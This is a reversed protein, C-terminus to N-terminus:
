NFHCDGPLESLSSNLDAEPDEEIRKDVKEAKTLAGGGEKGENEGVM